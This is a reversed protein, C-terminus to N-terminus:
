TQGCAGEASLDLFSGGTLSTMFALGQAARVNQSDRNSNVWIINIQVGLAQATQAVLKAREATFDGLSSALVLLQSGPMVQSTLRLDNLNEVMLVRGPLIGLSSVLVESLSFWKRDSVAIASPKFTETDLYPMMTGSKLQAIIAASAKGGLRVADRRELGSQTGLSTMANTVRQCFERPQVIKLTPKAEPVSAKPSEQAQLHGSVITASLLGLAAFTRTLSALHRFM